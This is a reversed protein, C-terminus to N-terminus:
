RILLRTRNMKVRCYRQVREMRVAVVRMGAKIPELWTKQAVSGVIRM